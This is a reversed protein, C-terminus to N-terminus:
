RGAEDAEGSQTAERSDELGAEGFLAGWHVTTGTPITRWAEDINSSIHEDTYFQKEWSLDM